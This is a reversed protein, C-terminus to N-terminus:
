RLPEHLYIPIFEHMVPVLPLSPSVILSIPQNTSNSFPYPLTQLSLFLHYHPIPTIPAHMPCSIPIFHNARGTISVTITFPLWPHMLSPHTRSPPSNAHSLHHPSPYTSILPPESVHTYPNPAPIIHCYSYPYPAFSNHFAHPTSLLVHHTGHMVMCPATILVENKVLSKLFELCIIQTDM